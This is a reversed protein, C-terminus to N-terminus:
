QHDPSDEGHMDLTRMLETVGIAQAEANTGAEALAAAARYWGPLKDTGIVSLAADLAAQAQKRKVADTSTLDPLNLREFLRELKRSALQMLQISANTSTIALQRQRQRYLELERWHDAEAQERQRREREADYAAARERWQHDQAWQEWRGSARTGTAASGTDQSHKRYAKDLSRAPGLDRYVCFAAFARSGEDPLREFIPEDMVHKVWRLQCSPFPTSLLSNVAM